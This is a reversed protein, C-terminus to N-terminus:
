LDAARFELYGLFIPLAIWAFLVLLSVWWEFYWPVADVGTWLKINRAIGETASDPLLARLAGKYSGAPDIQGVFLMWPDLEGPAPFKGGNLAWYIGQPVNQWLIQFLVFLGVVSAAAKAPSGTMASAGVALGTFAIGLLITLGMFILYNGVEFSSFVIWFLVGAVTFGIVIATTVVASRGILKGLIVDRRENPLSLLIKISGSAREGSISKYGSLIAVIPVLATIPLMLFTVFEAVGASGQLAPIPDEAQQQAWWLLGVFGGSVIVFLGSMVWLVKSRIADKYDKKAVAQWAGSVLWRLQAEIVNADDHDTSM